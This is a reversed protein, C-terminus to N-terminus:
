KVYIIVTGQKGATANTGVGSLALSLKGNVVVPMLNTVGATTVSLIGPVIQSASGVANSAVASGRGALVDIGSEDKLTVAYTANTPGPSGNYFVVRNMEGRVPQSTVAVTGDLAATWALTIKQPPDISERTESVSGAAFLSGGCLLFVAYLFLKM